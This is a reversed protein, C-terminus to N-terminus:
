KLLRPFYKMYIGKLVTEMPINYNVSIRRMEELNSYYNVNDNNTNWFKVQIISYLPYDSQEQESSVEIFRRNIYLFNKVFFNRNNGVEEKVEEERRNEEKNNENRNINENKRQQINKQKQETNENNYQGASNNNNKEKVEEIDKKQNESSITQKFKPRKIFDELTYGSSEEFLEKYREFTNKRM